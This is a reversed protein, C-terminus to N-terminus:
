SLPMLIVGLSLEHLLPLDGATYLWPASSRSSVLSTNSWFEFPRARTDLSHSCPILSQRPKSDAFMLSSWFSLKGMTTRSEITRPHLELPSSKSRKIYATTEDARKGDLRTWLSLRSPFHERWDRCAHILKLLVEDRGSDEWYDPMLILVDPPTKNATFFTDKVPRYSASCRYYIM